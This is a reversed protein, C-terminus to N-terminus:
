CVPSCYQYTIVELQGEGTPLDAAIEEADVHVDFGTFLDMDNM